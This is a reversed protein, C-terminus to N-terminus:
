LRGFAAEFGARDGAALLRAQERWRDRQMRGAFPGLQADLAAAQADDLAAIQGVTTIDLEGLRQQIKPGLGKLLGIQQDQPATAPPPTPADAAISAPTADMPAAAVVPEDALPREPLPEDVTPTPAPAAPPPVPVPRPAAVPAPAPVPRAAAVPTPAAVPAPAPAPASATPEEPPATDPEIMPVGAQEANREVTREAHKRIRKRRVGILIIAIAFAAVLAIFVFHMTTITAVGDPILSAGPAAATTENM